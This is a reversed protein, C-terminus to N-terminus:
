FFLSFFISKGSGTEGIVVLVQNDRIAKILEERLSFIPLTRRQELISLDTKRGLSAKVGGTIHKKWEPMDLTSPGILKNKENEANLESMPDNWSTNDRSYLKSMEAERQQAATERREKSLAGQMLAAQALSGDPNKMIRVPSLDSAKSRGYGKLFPADDEVIEIEIDENEEEEPKPLLGTEEDYFPLETKSIVGNKLMQTIEFREPSSIRQVVRRRTENDGDENRSILEPFANPRDPNRFTDQDNNKSQQRSNDKASRGFNPNLDEGTKQDVDKISLSIKSPNKTISLVKVKVLQDRRVVEEVDSVYGQRSLQSVHVLGDVKSKFDILRM